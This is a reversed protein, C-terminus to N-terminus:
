STSTINIQSDCVFFITILNEFKYFENGIIIKLGFLYIIIPKNYNIPWSYTQGLCIFLFKNLKEKEEGRKRRKRKRKMGRNERREKGKIRRTEGAKKRGM